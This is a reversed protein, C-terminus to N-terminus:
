QKSVNIATGLPINDVKLSPNWQLLDAVLVGYKKSLQYMTEGKQMIHLRPPALLITNTNESHNTKNTTQVTTKLVQPVTQQPKTEATEAARLQNLALARRQERKTLIIYKRTYENNPFLSYLHNGIKTVQDSQNLAIYVEIATWLTKADITVKTSEYKTMLEQAASFKQQSVKLYALALYVLPEHSQTNDLKELWYRADDLRKANFFCLGIQTLVNSQLTPASPTSPDDATSSRPSIIVAEGYGQLAPWKKEVCFYDLLNESVLQQNLQPEFQKNDLAMLFAQQAAVSNGKAAYLEAQVLAFDTSQEPNKLKNFNQQAKDINGILLYARVYSLLTKNSLNTDAAPIKHQNLQPTPATQQSSCAVVLLLGNLLLTKRIM